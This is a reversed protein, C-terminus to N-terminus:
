PKGFLIKGQRITFAVKSFAAVDQAPDASLVTVSKEGVGAICAPSSM